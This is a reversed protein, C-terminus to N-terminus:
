IILNLVIYIHDLTLIWITDLDITHFGERKKLIGSLLELLKSQESEQNKIENCEDSNPESKALRQAMTSWTMNEKEWQRAKNFLDGKIGNILNRIENASSSRDTIETKYSNYMEFAHNFRSISDKFNHKQLLQFVEEQRKYQKELECYKNIQENVRTNIEGKISPVMEVIISFLASSDAATLGSSSGVISYDFPPFSPFALRIYENKENIQKALDTDYLQEENGSLSNITEIMWNTYNLQLQAFHSIEIADRLSDIWNSLFDRRNILSELIDNMENENM